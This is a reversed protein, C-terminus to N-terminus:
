ELPVGKREPILLATAVIDIAYIVALLAIATAFSYETRLIGIVIPGFGGARTGRIRRMM